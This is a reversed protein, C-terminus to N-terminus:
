SWQGGFSAWHGFPWPISALILLLGITYSILIARHQNRTGTMKKEARSRGITIIAIAVVMLLVHELGFFRNMANTMWGSDFNIKGRGNMFYLVIGLLLQMHLSVMAFLNLMKHKKLYKGSSMSKAASVIAAVLLILIIWRLGSHAHVLINYMDKRKKVFIRFHRNCPRTTIWQNKGLKVPM